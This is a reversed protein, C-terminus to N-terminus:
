TMMSLPSSSFHCPCTLPSGVRELRESAVCRSRAFVSRDCRGCLDLCLYVALKAHSPKTRPFWFRILLYTRRRRAASRRRGNLRSSYDVSRHLRGGEESAVPNRVFPDTHNPDMRDTRYRRRFRSQFRDWVKECPAFFFCITTHSAFRHALRSCSDRRRIIVSVPNCSYYARRGLKSGMPFTYQKLAVHSPRHTAGESFRFTATLVSGLTALLFDRPGAATGGSATSHSVFTTPSHLGHSMSFWGKSYTVLTHKQGLAIRRSDESM